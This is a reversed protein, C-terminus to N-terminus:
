LGSQKGGSVPQIVQPFESKRDSGGKDLAPSAQILSGEPLAPDILSPTRLSEGNVSGGLFESVGSLFWIFINYFRIPKLLIVVRM